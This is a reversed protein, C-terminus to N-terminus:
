QMGSQHAFELEGDLAQNEEEERSYDPNEFSLEQHGDTVSIQSFDYVPALTERQVFTM